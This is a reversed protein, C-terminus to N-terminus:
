SFWRQLVELLSSLPLYFESSKPPVLYEYHQWGNTCLQEFCFQGSSLIPRIELIRTSFPAFIINVLGAGHPSIIHSAERMLSVQEIISLRELFVREFGYQQLYPLFEEENVIHRKGTWKRSIYLRRFPKKFNLSLYNKYFNQILHIKQINWDPTTPMPILLKEVQYVKQSLALIHFGCLQLLSIYNTPLNEPILIPWRPAQILYPLLDTIFHYYSTVFPSIGLLYHGKLFHASATDIKGAGLRREVRRKHEGTKPNNELNSLDWEYKRFHYYLKQNHQVLGDTGDIYAKDLPFHLFKGFDSHPIQIISDYAQM